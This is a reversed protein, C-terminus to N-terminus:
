PNPKEQTRISNSSTEQNNQLPDIPPLQSSSSPLVSPISSVQQDSSSSEHFIENSSNDISITSPTVKKKPLQFNIGFRYFELLFALFFAIMILILIIKIANDLMPNNLNFPYLKYIYFFANVGAANILTQILYFFWAPRYVLLMFNGIIALGFIINLPWMCSILNKETLQTIGMYCLNNVVYLLVIYVALSAFFSGKGPVKSEEKFYRILKNTM